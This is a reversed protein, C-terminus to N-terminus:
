GPRSRWRQLEWERRLGSAAAEVTSLLLELRRDATRRSGGAADRLASVTQQLRDARGAAELARQQWTSMEATVESVRASLRDIEQQRSTRAAAAADEATRVRRGQERLRNRLKAIEEADRDSPAAPRERLALWSSPRQRSGAAWSCWRTACGIPRSRM